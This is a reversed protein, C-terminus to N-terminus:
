FRCNFFWPNCPHCPHSGSGSRNSVRKVIVRQTFAWELVIMEKDTNDTFDTTEVAKELNFFAARERRDL